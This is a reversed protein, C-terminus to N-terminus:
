HVCSSLVKALEAFHIQEGSQKPKAQNDETIPLTVSDGEVKWQRSAALQDFETASVNLVQCLSQKTVTQFTVAVVGAIFARIVSAFAPVTSLVPRLAPSASEQWFEVFRATELLHALRVLAVLPEEQLAREPILYTLLLLDTGPLRM